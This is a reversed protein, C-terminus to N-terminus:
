YQRGRVRTVAQQKIEDFLSKSKGRGPTNKRSNDQQRRNKMMLMYRDAYTNRGGVVERAANQGEDRFERSKSAARQHSNHDSSGERKFTIYNNALCGFGPLDHQDDEDQPHKTLTIPSFMQQEREYKKNTDGGEFLRKRNSQLDAQSYKIPEYSTNDENPTELYAM